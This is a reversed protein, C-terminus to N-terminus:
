LRSEAQVLERGRADLDAVRQKSLSALAGIQELKAGALKARHIARAQADRREKEEASPRGRGIPRLLEAPEFGSERAADNLVARLDVDSIRKRTSRPKKFTRSGGLAHFDHLALGTDALTRRSDRSGASEAESYLSEAMNTWEPSVPVEWTTGSRQEVRELATAREDWEVPAGSVDVGHKAVVLLAHFEPDEGRCLALAQEVQADEAPSGDPLKGDIVIEVLAKVDVSCGYGFVPSKPRLSM